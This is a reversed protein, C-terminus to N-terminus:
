NWMPSCETEEWRQLMAVKMMEMYCIPFHFHVECHLVIVQGIDHLCYTDFGSNSGLHNLEESQTRLWTARRGIVIEQDGAAFWQGFVRELRSSECLAELIRSTEWCPSPFCVLGTENCEMQWSLLWHHLELLFYLQSPEKEKNGSQVYICNVNPLSPPPM